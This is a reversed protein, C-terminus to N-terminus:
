TILFFLSGPRRYQRPVSTRSRRYGTPRKRRDSIRCRALRSIIAAVPPFFFQNLPNRNEVRSADDSIAVKRINVSGQLLQLDIRGRNEDFSFWGFHKFMKWTIFIQWKRRQRQYFESAHPFGFLLARWNCLHQILITCILHLAEEFNRIQRAIVLFSIDAHAELEVLFQWICQAQFLFTKEM